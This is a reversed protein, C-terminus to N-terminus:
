PCAVDSFIRHPLAKHSLWVRGAVQHAPPPPPGSPGARGTTSAVLSALLEDRTGASSCRDERCDPPGDDVEEVANCNVLSVAVLSLLSPPRM